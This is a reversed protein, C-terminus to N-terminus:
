LHPRERLSELAPARDSLGAFTTLLRGLQDHSPGATAAALEAFIEPLGALAAHLGASSREAVLSGRDRAGRSVVGTVPGAFGLPMTAETSGMFAPLEEIAREAIVPKAVFALPLGVQSM